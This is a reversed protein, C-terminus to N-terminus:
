SAAVLQPQKPHKYAVPLFENRRIADIVADHLDKRLENQATWTTHNPNKDWAVVPHRTWRVPDGDPYTYEVQYTYPGDPWLTYNGNIPRGHGDTTNYNRKLDTTNQNMM